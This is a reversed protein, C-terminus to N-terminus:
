VYKLLIIYNLFLNNIFIIYYRLLNNNIFYNIAMTMFLNM